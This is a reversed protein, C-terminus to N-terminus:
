ALASALVTRLLICLLSQATQLAEVLDKCSCVEQQIAEALMAWYKEEGQIGGSERLRLDPRLVVKQQLLARGLVKFGRLFDERAREGEDKQLNALLVSAARDSSLLLFRSFGYQVLSCGLTQGCVQPCLSAWSAIPVCHLVRSLLPISLAGLGDIVTINASLLAAKLTSQLYHQAVILGIHLSRHKTVIEEM